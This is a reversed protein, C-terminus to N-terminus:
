KDLSYTLDAVRPFDTTPRAIVLLRKETTGPPYCTQLILEERGKHPTLYEIDKASVIKKEVVKYPYVTNKYVLHVQDDKELDKLLYFIANYRAVFWEYNTSHAFIYTTGKEGPFYTGKAHAAGQKLAPEYIKKDAVDVNPVVKSNISLKPIIVSFEPDVPKLIELYKQNLLYQFSPSEVKPYETEVKVQHASKVEPTLQDLRFRGEIFLVPAALVLLALISGVMFGKFMRKTKTVKIARSTDTHTTLYANSLEDSAEIHTNKAEFHIEPHEIRGTEAHVVESGHNQHSTLIEERKELIKKWASSDATEASNISFLTKTPSMFVKNLFMALM